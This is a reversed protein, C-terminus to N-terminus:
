RSAVRAMRDETVVSIQSGSQVARLGGTLQPSVVGGAAPGDHRQRAQAALHHQARTAGCLLRQGRSLSCAAFREAAKKLM